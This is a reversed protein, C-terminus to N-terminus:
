WLVLTAAESDEKLVLISTEYRLTILTAAISSAAVFVALLGFDSPAYLRSLLPMSIVGIFQAIATGTTLTAIDRAASGRGFRSM